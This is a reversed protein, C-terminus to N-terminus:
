LSIKEVQPTNLKLRFRVKNPKDTRSINTSQKSAYTGLKSNLMRMLEAVAAALLRPRSATRAPACGADCCLSM